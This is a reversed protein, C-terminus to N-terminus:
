MIVITHLWVEFDSFIQNFDHVLLIMFDQIM